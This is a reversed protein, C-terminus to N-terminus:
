EDDFISDNFELTEIADLGQQKTLLSEVTRGYKSVVKFLPTHWLEDPCGATDKECLTMRQLTYYSM